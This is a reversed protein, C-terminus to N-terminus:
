PKLIDIVEEVNECPQFAQAVIIDRIVKCDQSVTVRVQHDVILNRFEDVFTPTLPSGQLKPALSVRVRHDSLEAVDITAKETFDYAANMIAPLSYIATDLYFTFSNTSESPESM